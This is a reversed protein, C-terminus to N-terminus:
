LEIPYREGTLNSSSLKSLIAYPRTRYQPALGCPRDEALRHQLVRGQGYLWRALRPGDFGRKAVFALAENLMRAEEDPLDFADGKGEIVFRGVHSPDSRLAVVETAELRLVCFAVLLGACGQDALLRELEAFVVRPILPLGTHRPKGAGWPTRTVGRSSRRIPHSGASV